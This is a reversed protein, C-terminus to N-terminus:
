AEEEIAPKKEAELNEKNARVAHPNKSLDVIRHVVVTGAVAGFIPALIVGPELPLGFNPIWFLAGYVAGLTFAAVWHKRTFQVSEQVTLRRRESPYDMFSFGYFYFAIVFYLVQYVVDPLSYILTVLFFVAMMMLQIGMNRGSITLARVIDNIYLKFDFKYENGTLMKEAQVSLAALLPALLALVLYKNMFKSVYVMIFQIGLLLYESGNEDSLESFKFDRLQDTLIEGSYFLGISLMVPIVFALWMTSSFILQAAKWYSSLGTWFQKFLNM